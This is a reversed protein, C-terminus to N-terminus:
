ELHVKLLHVKLLDVTVLEEEGEDDEAVFALDIAWLMCALGALLAGASIVVNKQLSLPM